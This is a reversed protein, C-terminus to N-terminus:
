LVGEACEGRQSPKHASARNRGQAKAVYLARDAADILNEAYVGGWDPDMQAVGLSITIRIGKLLVKGDTGRIVFTNNEFRQRLAEAMDLAQEKDMGPLVM